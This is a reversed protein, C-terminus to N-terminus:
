DSSLERIYVSFHVGFAGLLGAKSKCLERVESSQPFWVSGQGEQCGQSVQENNVHCAWKRRHHWLLPRSMTWPTYGLALLPIIELNELFWSFVRFVFPVVCGMVMHNMEDEAGWFVFSPHPRILLIKSEGLPRVSISARSYSLITTSTTTRLPLFPLIEPWLMPWLLSQPIM